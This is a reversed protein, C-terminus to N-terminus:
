KTYKQLLYIELVSYVFASFGAQVVHRFIVSVSSKDVSYAISM